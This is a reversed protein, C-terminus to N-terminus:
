FPSFEDDAVDNIWSFKEMYSNATNEPPYADICDAWVGKDAMDGTVEWVCSNCKFGSGFTVMLVKDGRKLRGKAEMYSLVYWVSSASTNGWRHLTMRSPEVDHEELGFSKKVADIVAIGGAHLCLHDVGAKLNIKLKVRQVRQLLKQRALDATLRAIEMAPLVRPLLRQLNAAFARLAAKPLAKGISAGVFGDDDERQLICSYADDSAATTARVLRGLEMKARGRHAPDSTLLVAAGGSRFLCQALMMTREKGVYWHPALSETSVVLAVVPRPSRARMANQAIDVAVLTASCGMGSLNYAAVDERMGYRRVVRSALCPEPFFGSVNVVLVDVDRPRLGTRAFLEPVAGDFCADMEDVADQQAACEERGEFINRPGYTRDGLGARSILRLLFRLEPLGLRRNRQVIASALETTVTLEDAPKYCVYDLLYCRSRRRRSAATWALYFVAFTPPLVLMVALLPTLEM